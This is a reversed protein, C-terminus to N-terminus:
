SEEDRVEDGYTFSDGVAMISGNSSAFGEGSYRLGDADITHFSQGFGSGCFGPNPVHGLLGDHIFHGNEAM